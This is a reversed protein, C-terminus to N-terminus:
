LAANKKRFHQRVLEASTNILLTMVFLVLGCLFLVRYHTSARPAEPLEVAINAALTRFGSFINMTMEPTNGTAMLVIMTEGVARGLGVMIASFIGSAAVPLVVRVATQWPTAGVGLSASRLSVPVSRIADESITYIIPIVAIGMILGVVLTNRQSFPGFISDRPDLGLGSLATAIALAGLVSVMLNVLLRGLEVLNPGLHEHRDGANSSVRRWAPNLLTADILLVVGVVLPLVALVWGPMPGGHDRELWGRISGGGEGTPFLGAEIWSGAPIALLVGALTALIIAGFQGAAGWRLRRNRPIMRWAHAALVVAIPGTAALILVRPLQDRVFPAVVMAAMFGLVVSPLSAMLEITPKVYKRVRPSLFEGSYIAALVALPAAFLMAVVTAKITGWILPVLSYKPEASADGTSQYVFTPEDYGEYPMKGFLAGFSSEVHGPEVGTVSVQGADDIVVLSSSDASAGAAVIEGFGEPAVSVIRKRSGQNFMVASGDALGVVVTRDRDGPRITRVPADGVRRSLRKVLRAPTGVVSWGSITGTDDGTLLTQSGLAMASASIPIPAGDRQADIVRLADSEAERDIAAIRGSAWVLYVWRGDGSAYAKDPISGLREQSIEFGDARARYRVTGGLARRGSLEGTAVGSGGVGAYTRSRENQGRTDFAGSGIGDIEFPGLREIEMTWRRLGGDEFSQVFSGTETTNGTGGAQEVDLGKVPEWTFVPRVLVFGGGGSGDGVTLWGEGPEAQVAGPVGGGELVPLETLPAGTELDRVRMVGDADLSVLRGFANDINMWLPTREGITFRAREGLSAGPAFLPAASVVLFVCIGLMALLVILGGISILISAARDQVRVWTATRRGRAARVAGGGGNGPSDGGADM